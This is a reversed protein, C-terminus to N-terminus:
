CRCSRRDRQEPDAVIGELLVRWHGAMREITAGDFLDTAYELACACGAARTETVSLSLDFKASEGAVGAVRQSTSARAAALEGPPTNQLAFAM